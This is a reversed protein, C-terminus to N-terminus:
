EIWETIQGVPKEFIDEINIGQTQKIKEIVEEYVPKGKTNEVDLGKSAPVARVGYKHIPEFNIIYDEFDASISVMNYSDFHQIVVTMISGDNARYKFVKTGTEWSGSREIETMEYFRGDIFLYTNVEGHYNMILFVVPETELSYKDVAVGKAIKVDPYKPNPYPIITPKWKSITETWDQNAALVITASVSCLLITVLITTIKKKM